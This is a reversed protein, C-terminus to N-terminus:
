AIYCNFRNKSKKETNHRSELWMEMEVYVYACTLFKVDDITINKQVSKVAFTRQTFVPDKQVRDVLTILHYINTDFHQQQAYITWM